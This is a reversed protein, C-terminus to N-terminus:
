PRQPGASTGVGDAEAFLDRLMLRFGPLVAGGDLAGGEGVPTGQDAATYSTATRSRPDIHWVLRVGAAFYDELKRQMERATNDASLVEVALDPVVEWIASKPLQGAPLRDRSVFSADPIRVQRPMIRLFGDAGLVVGLGARRVFAKLFYVMAAAVGSEYSGMTKEVLTGDILECLRDSHADAALVDQETATYPAPVLRVRGPPVGGLRDLLEAVTGDAL